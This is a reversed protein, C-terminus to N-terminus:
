VLIQKPSFSLQVVFSLNKKSTTGRGFDPFLTRGRGFDPFLPREPFGGCDLWGVHSMTQWKSNVTCSCPGSLALCLWLNSLTKSSAQRSSEQLKKIEERAEQLQLKTRSWNKSVQRASTKAAPRGLGRLSVDALDTQQLAGWLARVPEALRPWNAMAEESDMFGKVSSVLRKSLLDMSM